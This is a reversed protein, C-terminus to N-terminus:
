SSGIPPSRPPTRGIEPPEPRGRTVTAIRSQEGPRICRARPRGLPDCLPRAIWPWYTIQASFDDRPAPSPFRVRVILKPSKHRWRAAVQHNRSRRSESGRVTLSRSYGPPSRGDPVCRARDRRGSSAVGRPTQEDDCTARQTLPRARRRSPPVGLGTLQALTLGVYPLTSTPLSRPCRCAVTLSTSRPPKM